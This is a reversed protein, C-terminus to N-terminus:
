RLQWEHEHGHVVSTISICTTHKRIRLATEYPIMCELARLYEHLEVCCWSDGECLVLQSELQTCRQSVLGTSWLSLMDELFMTPVDQFHISQSAERGGQTRQQKCSCKRTLKLRQPPTNPEMSRSRGPAQSKEINGKNTLFSNQLKFNSLKADTLIMCWDFDHMM